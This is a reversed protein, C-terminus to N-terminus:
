AGASVYGWNVINGLENVLYVQRRLAGPFNSIPMGLMGATVFHHQSLLTRGLKESDVGLSVPRM